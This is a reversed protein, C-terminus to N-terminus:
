SVIGHFQLQVQMMGNSRQNVPVPDSIMWVYGVELPYSQPRWAFFWGFELSNRFFPLLKDRVFLPTLNQLDVGSENLEGLVIRGLFNGSESKGNVVNSRRGMTIPTHGVYINRQLILGEGAYAIALRPVSSGNPQLKIKIQTYTNKTFRAIIPSDNAVSFAPILVQFGAGNNAQIEVTIGNTGFNHSALGVYDFMRASSPTITIEEANAASTGRWELFTSQNKLNSLPYSANETTSALTTGTIYAVNEWGVIPANAGVGDTLTLSQSIVLM